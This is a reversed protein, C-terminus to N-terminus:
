EKTADVGAGELLKKLREIEKEQVKAVQKYDVSAIEFFEATFPEVEIILHKIEEALQAIESQAGNGPRRKSYFELATRLNLTMVLNTTAANPLVARADEQPIGMEILNDYFEQITPMMNEEYVEKVKMLPQLADGEDIAFLTNKSEITEPVVYDFGNSRSESSLKVYRQSQVSFSIHRHRTLQALLARSVGEVAFTFTIGELTSTHGSNVIQTFLRRGEKGKEGFYKGGETRIIEEVNKYSYCTRIASLALIQGDTTKYEKVADLVKNKFKEAVQTHFILEINM